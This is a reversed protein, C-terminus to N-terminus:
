PEKYIKAKESVEENLEDSGSVNHAGFVQALRMYGHFRSTWIHYMQRSLKWSEVFWGVVGHHHQVFSTSFQDKTTQDTQQNQQPMGRLTAIM